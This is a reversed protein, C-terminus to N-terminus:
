APSGPEGAARWAEYADVATPLTPYIRDEGILEALGAARLDALLEQKM